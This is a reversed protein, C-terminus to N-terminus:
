FLVKLVIVTVLGKAIWGFVIVKYFTKKKFSFGLIEFKDKKFM